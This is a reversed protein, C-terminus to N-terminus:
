KGVAADAAPIEMRSTLTLVPDFRDGDKIPTVVPTDIDWREDGDASIWRDHKGVGTTAIVYDFSLEVNVQGAQRPAADEAILDQTIAHEQALKEAAFGGLALLRSMHCRLQEDIAALQSAPVEGETGDVSESSSVPDFLVLDYVYRAILRRTVSEFVM